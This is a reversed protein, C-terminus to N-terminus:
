GVRMKSGCRQCVLGFRLVHEIAVTRRSPCVRCCLTVRGSGRQRRIPGDYTAMLAELEVRMAAKSGFM